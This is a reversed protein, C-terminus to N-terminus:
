RFLSRYFLHPIKKEKKEIMKQKFFPFKERFIFVNLMFEHTKDCMLRVDNVKCAFMVSLQLLLLFFFISLNGNEVCKYNYKMAVTTIQLKKRKM